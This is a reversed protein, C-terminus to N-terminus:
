VRLPKRLTLGHVTHMWREGHVAHARHAQNRRPFHPIQVDIAIDDVPSDEDVSWQPHAGRVRSIIAAYGTATLRLHMKAALDVRAAALARNGNGVLRDLGTFADHVHTPGDPDIRTESRPAILDYAAATLLANRHPHGAPLDMFFNRRDHEVAMGLDQLLLVALEGRTLLSPISTIM